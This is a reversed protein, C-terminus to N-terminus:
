QKEWELIQHLQVKYLGAVPKINIPTCTAERVKAHKLAVSYTCHTRPTKTYCAHKPHFSYLCYPFKKCAIIHV